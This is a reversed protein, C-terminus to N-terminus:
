DYDEREQKAKHAAICIFAGVTGAASGLCLAQAVGLAGSRLGLKLPGGAYLLTGAAVGVGGWASVDMVRANFNHRLGDVRNQVGDPTWPPTAQEGKSAISRMGILGLCAGACGAVLSSTGMLALMTPYPRYGLKWAAVGVLSGVPTLADWGSGMVHYTMYSQNNGNFLDAPAWHVVPGDMNSAKILKSKHTATPDNEMKGAV